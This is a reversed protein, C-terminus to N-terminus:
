SFETRLHPSCAKKFSSQVGLLTCAWCCLVLLWTALCCLLSDLFYLVQWFTVVLLILAPGGPCVLHKLLLTNNNLGLCLLCPLWPSHNIPLFWTGPLIPLLFITNLRPLVLIRSILWPLLAWSELSCFLFCHGFKIVPVIGHGTVIPM